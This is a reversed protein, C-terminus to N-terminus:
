ARCTLLSILNQMNFREFGHVRNASIGGWDDWDLDRSGPEDTGHVRGSRSAVYARGDADKVTFVALCDYSPFGSDHLHGQFHTTGDSFVTLRGYGGVAIGTGFTISPADVVRWEPGSQIPFFCEHILGDTGVYAIHQVNEPTTYWSTPSTGPAVSVQGAGPVTHEWRLSM